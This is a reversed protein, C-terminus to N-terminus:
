RATSATVIGGARRAARRGATSARRRSSQVVCGSTGSRLWSPGFTRRAASTAAIRATARAVPAAVAMDRRRRSFALREAMSKTRLEKALWSLRPTGM